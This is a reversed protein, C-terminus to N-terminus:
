FGLSFGADFIGGIDISSDFGVDGFGGDFESCDYDNFQQQAMNCDHDYQHELNASADLAEKLTQM